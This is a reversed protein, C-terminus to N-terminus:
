QPRPGPRYGELEFTRRTAGSMWWVEVIIRYLAGNSAPLSPYAEFPEARARWGGRLGGAAPGFVGEIIQGPPPPEILLADLTRKALIAARDSDTVRAAARVSTGLASMLASIAIAMITTAVLVELLTFGAQASRRKM